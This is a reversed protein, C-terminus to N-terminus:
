GLVEAPVFRIRDGPRLLAAPERHPDFFRV